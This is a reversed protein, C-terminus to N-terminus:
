RRKMIGHESGKKSGQDSKQPGNYGAPLEFTGVIIKPTDEALTVNDLNDGVAVSYPAMMTFLMCYVLLISMLRQM